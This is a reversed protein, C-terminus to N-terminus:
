IPSRHHKPYRPAAHLRNRYVATYCKALVASLVSILVIAIVEITAADLVRVNKM